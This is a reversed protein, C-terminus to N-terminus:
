PKKYFFPYTNEFGIERYNHIRETGGVFLFGGKRLSQYFQRYIKDKAEDTFYIVVNRCVILDFGKDYNDRLLDHHKFEINKKLSESLLYDNNEQKFYKSVLAKDVNKVDQASYKGLKARELIQKDIDTALIKYGKVLPMKELMMAMTYPEAGYSCAASWIKLRNNEKLLEPFIKSELEQFREPNRFFESVNITIYNM